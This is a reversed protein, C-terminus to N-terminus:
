RGFIATTAPPWTTFAWPSAAQFTDQDDTPTAMNKTLQWGVSTAVWVYLDHTCGSPNNAEASASSCDNQQWMQFFRHVPDGTNDHFRTPTIALKLYPDPCNNLRSAGVLSYPGNPLDSPYRCDPGPYTNPPEYFSKQGTGGEWLLGQKSLPLGIDFCFLHHAPNQGTFLELISYECLSVPLAGLGTSPQPLVAFTGTQQPSSDYSTTDTAERQLARAANPGPQGAQDVIGRSLLNWVHQQPNRPVYTAFV